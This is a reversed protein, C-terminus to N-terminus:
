FNPKSIDLKSFNPGLNAGLKKKQTSFKESVFVIIYNIWPDIGFIDSLSPSPIPFIIANKVKQNPFGNRYKPWSFLNLSKIKILSWIM